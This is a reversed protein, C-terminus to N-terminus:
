PGAAVVTAGALQFFLCPLREMIFAHFTYYDHGTMRKISDKALPRVTYTYNADANAMARLEPDTQLLVMARTAFVSYSDVLKRRAMWYNCYFAAPTPMNLLERHLGMRSILSVWLRMFGPHFMEAHVYMNHRAPMMVLVDANPHRQQTVDLLLSWRPKTALKDPYSYTVFGVWECDDPLKSSFEQFTARRFLISEFFPSPAVYNPVLVGPERSALEEAVAKSAEDHFALSM